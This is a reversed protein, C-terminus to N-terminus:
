LGQSILHSLINIICVNFKCPNAGDDLLMMRVHNLKLDRLEKHQSLPICSSIARSSSVVSTAVSCTM